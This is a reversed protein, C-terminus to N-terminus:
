AAKRKFRELLDRGAFYGVLLVVLIIMSGVSASLLLVIWVVAMLALRVLLLLTDVAEQLITPGPPPDTPRM